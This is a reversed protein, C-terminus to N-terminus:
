DIRRMSEVSALEVASVSSNARYYGVFRNTEASDYDALNTAWRFGISQFLLRVSVRVEKTDDNLKIRYRVKDSGDTFDPDDDATGQVRIADSASSKDFGSPLLRNDKVYSVANLLGTTVSDNRDLLIPEYIQVNMPDRIEIYHPEYTLPDVDNDNGVISGDARLAGSEFLVAGDSNHAKVHLWARRSPYATPLKHGALNHVGIVVLLNGDKELELDMQLRATENRLHAETIAASRQLEEAPATVGLENRYLDLLKLMFANGGRFAHRSLGDRTEGLVSSIPAPAAEPMHCDQCSKESAYSSHRWELYPVQEPFREGPAAHVPRTFLTHCTACLESQQIHIGTKPEFGSASSMIRRLGDDVEFPGYVPPPNGSAKDTAILFGGDFSSEEGFNTSEMRHCVTCSVGDLALVSEENSTDTLHAFVQGPEDRAAALARAMPMHCTSCTDEINQRLTPHDQIERRVSAQWYPDRASHAMMTSRWAHGISVNEGKEDLLNSHCAICQASDTFTTHDPTQAALQVTFIGLLSLATVLEVVLRVKGAM